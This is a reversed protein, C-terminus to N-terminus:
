RRKKNKEDDLGLYYILEESNKIDVAIYHAEIM